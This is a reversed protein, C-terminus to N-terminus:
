ERVKAANEHAYLGEERAMAMADKRLIEVGERTLRQETLVKLFNLVSLGGTYKAAGVTPLTHNPGSNYDGFVEAANEGLFLSGYNRLDKLISEDRVVVELHEPAIENSLRVGESLDEVLYVEGYNEWSVEAVERTPLTELQKGAEDMVELGLSYSDTILIGKAMPDHESQALLDAAVKVPDASDDALVLVESPGAVFDIGVTGYCQRKAEAVYANGPGVVMSVPRITQTGYSFAAVAQAGGLLYIEHAGALDMAVITKAPLKGDRGPPTTACIREVGAIAAPAILMLATSFLPYRGGPIYCLVSDVPVLRHGTFIGGEVEEMPLEGLCAKQRTAFNKIRVLARTCLDVFEASVEDYCAKIEEPSVAVPRNTGDFKRRYDNLAYDGHLRIDSIIKAVTKVIDLNLVEERSAGKKLIRM